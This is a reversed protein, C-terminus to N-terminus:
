IKPASESIINKITFVTCQKIASRYGDNHGISYGFALGSIFISTMGIFYFKM